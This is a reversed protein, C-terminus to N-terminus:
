LAQQAKVQHCPVRSCQEVLMAAASHPLCVFGVAFM